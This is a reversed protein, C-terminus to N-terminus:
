CNRRGQLEDERVIGGIERELDQEGDAAGPETRERREEFEPEPVGLKEELEFAHEMELDDLEEGTEYKGVEDENDEREQDAESKL